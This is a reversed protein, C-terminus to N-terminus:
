EVIMVLFVNLHSRFPWRVPSSRSRNVHSREPVTGSCIWFSGFNSRHFLLDLKPDAQIREPGIGSRYWTLMKKLVRSLAFAVGCAYSHNLRTKRIFLPHPISPITHYPITHYPITHYPITHNPISHYIIYISILAISEEAHIM